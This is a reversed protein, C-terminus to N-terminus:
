QKKQFCIFVDEPRSSSEKTFDYLLGTGDPKIVFARDGTAKDGPKEGFDWRRNFGDISFIAHYKAGAVIVTGTEAVIQDAREDGGGRRIPKRLLTVLADGNRGQVYDWCEWTESVESLASTSWVLVIIALLYRM